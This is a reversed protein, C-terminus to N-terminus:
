GEGHWCSLMAEINELPVDVGAEGEGILGGEPTELHHKMKRAAARIDEPTGHPLTHQRDLEGWFCIRGRFRAGLKEVGMCWVQSNLADVGLAILDEIVEVIYGDSHFFVFKGAQHVRAFMEEYCPAFFARWTRPPILLQWQSGWDDSFVIADLGYSLWRELERLNFDHVVDRLCYVEPRDDMLDMMLATMGRLWQMREFLRIFAGKIFKDRHKEIFAPIGEFGRDLLEYPPQYNELAAYDALPPTKVQSFIGPQENNWLVGWPDLFEGRQYMASDDYASQEAGVIDVPYRKLLAKIQPGYKWLTGPLTWLEVPTRDPRQFAVARRVRERNDMDDRRLMDGDM